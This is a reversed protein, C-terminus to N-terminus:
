QELHFIKLRNLHRRYEITYTTEYKIEHMDENIM